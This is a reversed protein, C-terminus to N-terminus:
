GGACYATNILTRASDSIGPTGGLIRCAQQAVLPDSTVAVAANQLSAIDGQIAAAQLFPMWEIPDNPTLGRTAAQQGLRAVEDWNGRQRALSAQEYYFCWDHAPEPGFEVSPPTHSEQSLLIHTVDSYPAVERVSSDESSSLELATGDLVQVCSTPSPQSLVLVQRYNKYTRITRRDDFEQRQKTVIKNVTDTNLIAAYVAPQNVLTNQAQPYYILNAPGWVFYDEEAAGVAYHAVLTTHVQFQPVRWSVQWWFQQMAQDVNAFWVSNAYQTLVAIFVLAGLAGARVSGRPVYYLCAVLFIMAGVAAVLTYRSYEPFVIHRNVLIVPILGFLTASLGLWLAEKRWDVPESETEDTARAIRLLWVLVAAAAIAAIALGLLAPKWEITATLEYLPVGWATVLVNLMDKFLYVLRTVAAVPLSLDGTSLQAGVDTAGRQSQFFFLRWTLFVVPLALAPFAWRITRWIKQWITGASRNALVFVAAWRLYEFGIYWEMQGLALWGLLISLAFLIAKAAPKHTLVAKVTLAVSLCAAALGVIHSQFDIANPQSLFGPYVLYLLAMATAAIRQRPWLMNFLWLLAVAGLLRFLYASINYYLPNAGFLTYSPIMVLARFPRDISFLGWFVGPGHAGASYMLYWDDNFYGFHGILPLYALASVILLLTPSWLRGGVNALASEQPSARTGEPAIQRDATAM